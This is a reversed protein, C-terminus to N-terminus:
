ATHHSDAAADNAGTGSLNRAKRAKQKNASKVRLFALKTFYAKRASAVLVAQVEPTLLGGPDVLNIFRADFGARLSSTAETRDITRSWRTHAAIKGRLVREPGSLPM